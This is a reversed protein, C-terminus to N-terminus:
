KMNTCIAEKRKILIRHVKKKVKAAKEGFWKLGKYWLYARISSMGQEKCIKQIERDAKDRLELPLHENRILQYLADHVLSGLMTNKTDITPGSAGDWAFGKKIVIVGDEFLEIYETVICYGKIDIMYRVTKQLQYKYGKKYALEKTLNKEM